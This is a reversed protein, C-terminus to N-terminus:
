IYSIIGRIRAGMQANDAVASTKWHAARRHFVLRPLKCIRLRSIPSWEPRSTDCHASALYQNKNKCILESPYARERCTFTFAIKKNFGVRHDPQTAIAVIDRCINGFTSFSHNLHHLIQETSSAFKLRAFIYIYLAPQTLYINAHGLCIWVYFHAAPEQVSHPMQPNFHFSRVLCSPTTKGILPTHPSRPAFGCCFGANKILISNM